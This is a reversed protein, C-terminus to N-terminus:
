QKKLLLPKLFADKTDKHKDVFKQLDNTDATFVIREGDISQHALESPHAALYKKAWGPNMFRIEFTKDILKVRSLTHAPLVHLAWLASMDEFKDKPASPYLDLYSQGKITVLTGVFEAKKKKGDEDSELNVHYQKLKGKEKSFTWTSKGDDQKWVGLLGEDFAIDTKTYFPKLSPVCGCLAILVAFLVFQSRRYM